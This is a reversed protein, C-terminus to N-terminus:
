QVVSMESPAPITCGKEHELNLGMEHELIVGRGIICTYICKCM